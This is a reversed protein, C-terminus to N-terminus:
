QGREEHPSKALPRPLPRFIRSGEGTGHVSDHASEPDQLASRSELGFADAISDLIEQAIRSIAAAELRTEEQRGVQSRPM